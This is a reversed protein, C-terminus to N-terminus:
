RVKQVSGGSCRALAQRSLAVREEFDRQMQVLNALCAEDLELQELLSRRELEAVRKTLEAARISSVTSPYRGRLPPQPIPASAATPLQRVNSPLANLDVDCAVRLVRHPVRRETAASM